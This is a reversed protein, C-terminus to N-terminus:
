VRASQQWETEAEPSLALGLGEPLAGWIAFGPVRGTSRGGRGGGGIHGPGESPARQTSRDKGNLLAELNPTQQLCWFEPGPSNMLEKMAAPVQFPAHASLPGVNALRVLYASLHQRFCGQV